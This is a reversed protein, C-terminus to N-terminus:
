YLSEEYLRDFDEMFAGINDYRLAISSSNGHIDSFGKNIIISGEFMKCCGDRNSIDFMTGDVELEIIMENALETEKVDNLKM